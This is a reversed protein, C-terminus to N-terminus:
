PPFQNVLTCLRIKACINLWLDHRLRFLEYLLGFLLRGLMRGGYTSLGM